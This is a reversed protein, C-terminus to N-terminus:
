DWYTATGDFMLDAFRQVDHRYMLVKGDKTLACTNVGAIKNFIKLLAKVRMKQFKKNGSWISRSLLYKTIEEDDLGHLYDGYYTLDKIPSEIYKVKKKKIKM